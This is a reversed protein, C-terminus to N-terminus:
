VRDAAIGVVHLADLCDVKGQVVVIACTGVIVVLGVQNQDAYRAAAFGWGAQVHGHLEADAGRVVRQGFVVHFAQLQRRHQFLVVVLQEAQGDVGVAERGDAVLALGVAAVGAKGLALEFHALYLVQEAPLVNGVDVGRM